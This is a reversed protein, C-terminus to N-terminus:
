LAIAIVAGFCVFMGVIEVCIIPEKLLCFAIISMFFPSTNFLIMILSLPAFPVALNFSTFSTHGMLSRFIIHCEKGKPFHKIPNLGSILNWIISVVFASLCRFFTFEVIHFGSKALIKYIVSM